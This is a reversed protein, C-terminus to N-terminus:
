TTIEPSHSPAGHEAPLTSTSERERQRQGEGCKHVTERESEFLYMCRKLFSSAGKVTIKATRHGTGLLLM